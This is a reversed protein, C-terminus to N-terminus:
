RRRHIRRVSLYQHHSRDVAHGMLVCAGGENRSLQKTPGRHSCATYRNLDADPRSIRLRVCGDSRGPSASFNRLSSRGLSKAPVRPCVGDPSRVRGQRTRKQGTTRGPRSARSSVAHDDNCRTPVLQPLRRRELYRGKLNLARHILDSMRSKDGTCVVAM